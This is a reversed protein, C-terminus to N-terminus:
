RRKTQQNYNGLAQTLSHSKQYQAMFAALMSDGAGVSNVVKGQPVSSQYIEQDKTVLVAGDGGLSVIVHQAGQTQLKKAYHIIDDITKIEVQFIEALEQRNPKIVFPHHPLCATLLQRNSDLVFHVQKDLCLKAIHIYDEQSMGPAMNGSLFVTDGVQLQSELFNFLAQSDQAQITPGAGNIETEVQGKIKMNIRTKGEVEVFHQDIGHKALEDELYQGTFGAVFGTAISKVGLNALLVSVNIGKGGIVYDEKQIRNLEGVALQDLLVVYDIAPNFTITYNM